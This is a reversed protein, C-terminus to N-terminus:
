RILEEFPLVDPSARLVMAEIHRVRSLDHLWARQEETPQKRGHKLELALARDGRVAFVDPWGSDAAWHERRSDNTSTLRWGAARLRPIVLRDRFAAEDPWAFAGSALADRAVDLPDRRYRQRTM